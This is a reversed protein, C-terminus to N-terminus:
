PLYKRPNSINLLKAGARALGKMVAPGNMSVEVGGMKNWTLWPTAESAPASVVGSPMIEIETGRIIAIGIVYTYVDNRRAMPDKLFDFVCEVMQNGWQLKMVPRLSAVSVVGNGVASYVSFVIAVPGGVMESIRPNVHVFEEGPAAQSANMVDGMHRVYPVKEMQGLNEAHVISMRGDPYLIGAKLDLDDNDDKGDGNDVWKATVLISTSAAGKALSVKHSQDKKTLIVKQPPNPLPPPLSPPPPSPAAVPAPAEEGGFHKLLAGLGGNFGQGVAAFRWGDKRYLEGVILAKESGFDAGKLPFEALITRDADLLRLHGSLLQSMLGPGDITMVIVMRDISSPIKGTHIDFAGIQRGVAAELSIGGCPSSKQNYFIFYREDSLKGFADVGFCSCDITSGPIGASLAARIDPGPTLADLRLKQGRQLTQM